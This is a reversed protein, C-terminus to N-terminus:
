SVATGLLSSSKALSSNQAASSLILLTGDAIFTLEEPTEAFHLEITSSPMKNEKGRNKIFAAAGRLVVGVDYYVLTYPSHRSSIEFFLDGSESEYGFSGGPVDSM